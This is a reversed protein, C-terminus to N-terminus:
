VKAQKYIDDFKFCDTTHDNVMGTAQMYAYCITPGVFKFGRKKLDKSMAESEPTSVPIQKFSKWQNLIPKGGVFQWIYDGFSPFEKQIKLFARANSRAAAIKLRNRIIRSDQRIEELKKDSYEAIKTADFDDFVVRYGERKNLVTSWSLGAQAGELILMEFLHQDDYSPQGWEHDHYELEPQSGNEVWKCRKNNM